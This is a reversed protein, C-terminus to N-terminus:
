KKYEIVYKSKCNDQSCLRQGSYFARSVFIVGLIFDRSGTNESKINYGQPFVLKDLSPSSAFTEVEKYVTKPPHPM